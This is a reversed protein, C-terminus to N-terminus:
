LCVWCYLRHGRDQAHRALLALEGLFDALVAPDCQGRFEETRSWPVAVEALREPEREVLAQTLEDTLSLVLGEGGDRVAVDLGCRPRDVIVDASVGTLLEELAVLEATPDVGKASLVPLDQEAFRVRPRM